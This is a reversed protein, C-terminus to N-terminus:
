GKEVSDSLNKFEVKTREAAVKLDVIPLPYGLELAIQHSPRHIERSKITSLEKVYKRVFDGNPDFREAQRYPNFIRFYPVADVGTSASWQWGGNNSAFDADALRSYFYREGLRWDILLHKTLFMAVIMRLRNHMWGTTNLQRMGADVIPIGTRGECWLLFLDQDNRWPINDTSEKFARNKGVRPYFLLINRYFERWVLEALWCKEGDTLSMATREVDSVRGFQIAQLCQRTTLVGIALYVSLQSTSELAPYDRKLHYEQIGQQVFDELAKHASSEGISCDYNKKFHGRLRQLSELNSSIALPAQPSPRKYLPRSDQRMNALWRKNFASFVKYCDGDGNVIRGPPIICQDHFAYSNVGINELERCLMAECDKENAEYQRNFFVKSILQDQCYNVLDKVLQHYCGSDIIILPINLESLMKDLEYLHEIILSRQDHSLHHTEWQQNTLCYIAICSGDSMGEFLAPNDLIRLDSRFWIVNM